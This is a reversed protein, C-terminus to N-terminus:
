AGQTIRYGVFAKKHVGKCWRAGRTSRKIRVRERFVVMDHTAGGQDTFPGIQASDIAQVIYGKGGTRFSIQYSVVFIGAADVTIGPDGAADYYLGFHKVGCVTKNWSVGYYSVESAANTQLSLTGHGDVGVGAYNADADVLRSGLPGSTPLLQGHVGGPPPILQPGHVAASAAAPGTLALAALGATLTAAFGYRSRPRRSTTSTPARM